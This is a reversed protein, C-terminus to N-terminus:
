DPFEDFHTSDGHFTLPTGVHTGDQRTVQITHDGVWMAAAAARAWSM